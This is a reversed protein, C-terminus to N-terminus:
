IYYRFNPLRAGVEPNAVLIEGVADSYRVTVPQAEGLRCANFNLKTLGLIDRGVTDIDADGHQIDIRLPIPVEWGDYTGLRPKFGSAWLFASREESRWWTGRVVPWQGERFARVGSRDQQVRVAVVEVDSPAGEAFGEFEERFMRSRCHIFLEKLPRGEQERYTRLVGEVLKRAAEKTLHFEKKEPSYWPGFEGLFVIGDGSDLFMQAACCATRRGWRGSQGACRYAIGLYSVGERATGLKWPLGGAKYYLATSLNWARDSLPSLGRVRTTTEPADQLRLTSERIIQIPTKYEMVRAKIQRRFDVSYRYIKPDVPDFLDTQGMARAKREHSSIRIGTPNKVHSEPRCNEYVLDPVICVILDARADGVTIRRIADLYIDVVDAARRSPDINRALDALRGEAIESQRTPKAPWSTNFAVDFGPFPPWLRHDLGEAVLPSNLAKAWAAFADLGQPAGVVAYSINRPHSSTDADFPGFLSLGDRPDDVAQGHRFVLSPEQLVDVKM